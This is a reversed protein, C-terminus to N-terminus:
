FMIDDDEEENLNNENSIMFWRLGNSIDTQYEASIFTAYKQVWIDFRKRKLWLKYDHYEQIFNEFYTKKDHRKNIPFNEQDQIWEYFEMSTEAIFKRLEINKANQKILGDKLYKQLCEVMYNDFKNFDEIEWEDFLERGFEDSPTLKRGYYQAIELEHRRRDHSNGDGKIAYNTSLM